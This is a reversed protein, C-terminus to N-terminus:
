SNQRERRDYERLTRFGAHLGGQGLEKIKLVPLGPDGPAPRFKQMALGNKYSAIDLLSLREWSADVDNLM